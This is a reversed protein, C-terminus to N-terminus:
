EGSGGGVDGRRAEGGELDGAKDLVSGGKISTLVIKRWGQQRTIM